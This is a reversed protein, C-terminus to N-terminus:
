FYKPEILMNIQGIPLSTPENHTDDDNMYIILGIIVGVESFPAM